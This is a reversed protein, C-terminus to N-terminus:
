GLNFQLDNQRVAGHGPRDLRNHLRCLRALNPVSFNEDARHLIRNADARFFFSLAGNLSRHLTKYGSQPLTYQQPCTDVSVILPGVSHGLLCIRFRSWFANNGVRSFLPCFHNVHFEDVCKSGPLM